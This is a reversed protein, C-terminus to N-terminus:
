KFVKQSHYKESDDNNHQESVSSNRQLIGINRLGKNTDESRRTLVDCSTVLIKQYESIIKSFDKYDQYRSEVLENYKDRYYDREKVLEQLEQKSLTENISFKLSDVAETFHKGMIDDFEQKTIYKADNKTSLPHSTASSRRMLQPQRNNYM